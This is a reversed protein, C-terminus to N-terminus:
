DRESELKDANLEDEKEEEGFSYLEGALRRDYFRRYDM